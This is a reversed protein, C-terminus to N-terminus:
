GDHTQANPEITGTFRWRDDVLEGDLDHFHLPSIGRGSGGSLGGRGRPDIPFRRSLRDPGRESGSTEPTTLDALADEVDAKLQKIAKLYGQKYAERLKETSQWDDHAPPEALRLFEELASDVATPNRPNRAEGCILAAHFPRANVAVHSRDWYDIVMGSNRFPAVNGTLEGDGDHALRVALTATATTGQQEGQKPPIKVEIDRTVIDGPEELSDETEGRLSTRYCEVFNSLERHVSLSLDRQDGAVTASVSLRPSDGMLAPWFYEAAAALIEEASENMTREESRTPDRFGPIM